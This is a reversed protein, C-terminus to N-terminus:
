NNWAISKTKDARLQEYFTHIKKAHAMILKIKNHSLNETEMIMRYKDFVVGIIDEDSTEANWEFGLMKAYKNVNPKATIRDFLHFLVNMDVLYRDFNRHKEFFEREKKSLSFDADILLGFDTLYINDKGDLVFNGLHADMHIMNQTQLFKVIAQAEDRWRLNPESLTHKYLVNPMYELFLLLRHESKNKACLYKEINKNSGWYEIHKKDFKITAKPKEEVIRYHYMLPFGPCKGSLVFNTTKVHAQLERWVNIGASGIGYNYYTPLDFLNSTDFRHDMEKDTIKLSKVFIRVRNVLIIYNQGYGQTKEKSNKLIGAIEKDSLYSLKSSIDYHIDWRHEM